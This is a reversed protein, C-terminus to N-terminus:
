TRNGPAPACDAGGRAAIALMAGAARRLAGPEAAATEPAALLLAFPGAAALRRIRWGETAFAAGAAAGPPLVLLVPQGARPWAALLLLVAASGLLQLVAHRM